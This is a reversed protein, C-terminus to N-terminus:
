TILRPDSSLTEGDVTLYISSYVEDVGGKGKVSEKSVETLESYENVLTWSGGDSYVETWGSGKKDPSLKGGANTYGLLEPEGEVYDFVYYQDYYYTTKQGGGSVKSSEFNSMEKYLITM